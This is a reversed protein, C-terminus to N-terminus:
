RPGSCCLGGAPVSVPNKDDPGAGLSVLGDIGMRQQYLIAEPLHSTNSSANGVPFADVIDDILDKLPRIGAAKVATENMCVDYTRQLM